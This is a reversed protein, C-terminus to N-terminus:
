SPEGLYLSLAHRVKSRARHLLVRQNTESIDLVNCVEASDFGQLDRLTIVSRQNPPLDDIARLIHDRTEKSILHAEPVNEWSLPDTEWERPWEPHNAPFFYEPPVSPEDSEIDQELDSFPIYRGEREARTKARNTLIRFIWTKLSSRGEFHQLGRLVGVWTEQVVEEALMRDGVYIMAIRIMPLHYHEVLTTFASEDGKLLAAVLEADNAFPEHKPQQPADPPTLAAANHENM